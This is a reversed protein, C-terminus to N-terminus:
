SDKPKRANTLIEIAEDMEANSFSFEKVEEHKVTLESKYAERYEPRWRKLTFMLLIHSYKDNRDLARHKAEAELSAVLDLEQNELADDWAQSFEHDQDKWDYMTRRHVGIAKAADKVTSGAELAVLFKHKNATNAKSNAPKAM